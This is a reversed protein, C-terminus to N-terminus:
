VWMWAAPLSGPSMEICSNSAVRYLWTSFKAGGSQWAGPNTWVKLFVEQAQDEAESDDPLMRRCLAYIRGHHRAVLAAFANGDGEGIRELLRADDDAASSGAAPRGRSEDDADPEDPKVLAWGM